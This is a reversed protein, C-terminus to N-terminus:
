PEIACTDDCTSVDLVVLGDLFVCWLQIVGWSGEAVPRPAPGELFGDNVQGAVNALDECTM